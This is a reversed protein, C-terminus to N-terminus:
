QNANAPKKNILTFTIPPVDSYKLSFQRPTAGDPGPDDFTYTESFKKGQMREMINGSFGVFGLEKGALSVSAKEFPADQASGIYEVALEVNLYSGTRNAEPRGSVPPMPGRTASIIRVKWNASEGHFSDPTSGGSKSCALSWGALLLVLSMLAIKM